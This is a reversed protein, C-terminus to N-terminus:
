SDGNASDQWHFFNSSLFFCVNPKHSLLEIQGASQKRLSDTNEQNQMYSAMEGFNLYAFKRLEIEDITRLVELM